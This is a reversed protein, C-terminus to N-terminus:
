APLATRAALWKNLQWAGWALPIAAFGCLAFVMPEGDSNELVQTYGHIGAFTLGANFLGRRNSQAAWIILVVLAAAWLLSYIGEPITIATRAFADRAADWAEYTTFTDSHYYYGPGWVTQGIVDGWLSGVLACLNAVIFAMIALIQGHRATREGFRKAVFLSATILLAMTLISLTPEPSYFAYMAHAYFTGTDLVQAFPIIALATVFRVNVFWGAGIVVATCYLHFLPTPLGWLDFHEMMEAVGGLHLAVGMLFVSGSVFRLREAHRLFSWAGLAAIIVGGPLMVAWAIERLDAMLKVAGGGVLLGTGILAAALGFIRWIDATKALIFAGASALLLGLGAVLLADKLWFITGGAAALIGFCLLVNVALTLMAERARAKLIEVQAETLIGDALLATTNAVVHM